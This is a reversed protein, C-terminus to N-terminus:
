GRDCDALACRGRFSRYNEPVAQLWAKGEVIECYFEISHLCIMFLASDASVGALATSRPGGVFIFPWTSVSHTAAM